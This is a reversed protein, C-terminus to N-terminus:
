DMGVNRLVLDPIPLGLRALSDLLDGTLNATVAAWAIPMIWALGAGEGAFRAAAYVMAYPLLKDKLFDGIKRLDFDDEYIAAAVAAVTNVIVHGALFRIEPLSVLYALVSELLEIINV